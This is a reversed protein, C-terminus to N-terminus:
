TTVKSRNAALYFRRDMELQDEADCLDEILHDIVWERDHLKPLLVLSAGIAGLVVGALASVIPLLTTM